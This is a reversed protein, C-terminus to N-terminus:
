FNLNIRATLYMPPGQTLLNQVVDQTLSYNSEPDIGTFKTWTKLNRAALNLSAARSRLFRAAFTEPITVTASVERLRWFQQHEFYGYPTQISTYRNAVARAQEELSSGIVSIGPCSTSQQCLFSQESNNVNGGGKYDVM